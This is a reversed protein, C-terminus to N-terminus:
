FGYVISVAYGIGRHPKCRVCRKWYLCRGYVALNYKFGHLHALFLVSYDKAEVFGKARHPNQVERM